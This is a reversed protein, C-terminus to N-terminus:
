RRVEATRALAEGEPWRLGQNRLLREVGDRRSSCELRPTGSVGYVWGPSQWRASVYRNYKSGTERTLMDRWVEGIVRGDLLVEYRPLRAEVGRRGM